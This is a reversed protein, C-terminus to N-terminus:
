QTSATLPFQTPMNTTTASMAALQHGAGAVQGALVGDCM